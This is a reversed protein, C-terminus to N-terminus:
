WTGAPSSVPRMQVNLVGVDVNALTSFAARTLDVHQSGPACGACTDVVRVYACTTPGNCVASEDAGFVSAFREFVFKRPLRLM